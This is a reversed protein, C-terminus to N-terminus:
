GRAGGLKRQLELQFERIDDETPKASGATPNLGLRGYSDVFWEAKAGSAFTVDGSMAAGPRVLKSVSVQTKKKGLTDAAKADAAKADAPPKPEAKPDQKKWNVELDAALMRLDLYTMSVGQEALLKQVDSLSRGENLKAAVFAKREEPNMLDWTEQKPPEPPPAAVTDGGNKGLWRSLRETLSKM